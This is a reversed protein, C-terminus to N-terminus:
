LSRIFEWELDRCIKEWILDQQHLKERSKLLPFSPLFEDLGLVLLVMRRPTGFVELGSFSTRYESLISTTNKELQSLMDTLYVSPIEETGIEFLLDKQM